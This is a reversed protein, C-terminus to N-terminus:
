ERCGAARLTRAAELLADYLRTADTTRVPTADPGILWGAGAIPPQQQTLEHSVGCLPACASGPLAWRAATGPPVVFGLTDGGVDHLVPGVGRGLRLIDVAELGRRAPVTVLETPPTVLEGGTSREGCTREWGKASRFSVTVRSGETDLLPVGRETKPGRVLTM